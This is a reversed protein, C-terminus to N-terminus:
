VSTKEKHSLIQLLMDITGMFPHSPHSTSLHGVIEFEPIAKLLSDVTNMGTESSSFVRVALAIDDRALTGSLFWGFRRKEFQGILRVRVRKSGELRDDALKGTPLLFLVPFLSTSTL